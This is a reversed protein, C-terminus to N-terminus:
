NELWVPKAGIPVPNGILQITNGDLTKYDTFQPDPSYASFECNGDKCTQSTDWVAQARYGKPGKFNCTWITGSVTCPQMTLPVTMLWSHLNTYALGAKTIGTEQDYLGDGSDIWGRWWFRRIGVSRHLLFFRALFAAQLDRNTFCDRDTPGWSAETDWVPKDQQGYKKLIAKLNGMVTILSEAEPFVGCKEPIVRVDGHLALIDAYNLGGAAGYADWWRLAWPHQAEVGGNLLKATPDISLIIARADQAMRALQFVTGNWYFKEYPENWIEWRNIQGNVHTAVATVFDKWHQDTGTGDANLDNPADCEGPAYHCVHDDPNSSAWRPTMALTFLFTTGPHKQATSLWKDLHTWDYTGQSPNLDAWRTDTDWLRLSHFPVQPWTGPSHDIVNMFRPYIPIDDRKQGGGQAQASVVLLSFLGVVVVVVRSTLTKGAKALSISCLNSSEIPRVSEALYPFM